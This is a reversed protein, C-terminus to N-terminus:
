RQQRPPQILIDKVTEIQQSIEANPNPFEIYILRWNQLPLM